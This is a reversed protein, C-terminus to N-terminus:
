PDDRKPFQVESLCHRVRVNGSSILVASLLLRRWEAAVYKGPTGMSISYVGPARSTDVIEVEKNM